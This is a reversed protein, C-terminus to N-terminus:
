NFDYNEYKIWSGIFSANVPYEGMGSFQLKGIGLDRTENMIEDIQNILFDTRLFSYDTRILSKHVFANVILNGSKFFGNVLKFNNFTLTIFSATETQIDPVFSYPFINKYLLTLKNFDTPLQKDLFDTDEEKNFYLCKVIKENDIIKNLIKYKYQSIEELRAM